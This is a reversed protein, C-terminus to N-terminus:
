NVVRSSSGPSFIGSGGGRGLFGSYGNNANSGISSLNSVFSSFLNGLPSYGVPTNLNQAQRLAGNSAAESNGTANLESVLNSRVNEVNTRAKNANDLGANAIGVRQADTEATLDANQKNAASSDLNGTRSLAYILSNRANGAQRELTPTAFDVYDKARKAYYNDDFQKFTGDIGIQGQAIRNQRAVEDARQQKAIESEGGGGFFCM